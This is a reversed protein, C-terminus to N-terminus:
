RHVKLVAPSPSFLVQDSSDKNVTLQNCHVHVHVHLTREARSGFCVFGRNRQSEALGFLRLSGVRRESKNDSERGDIAREGSRPARRSRRFRPITCTLDHRNERMCNSNGKTVWKVARWEVCRSSRWPASRVAVRAHPTLRSGSTLRRVPGPTRARQCEVCFVLCYTAGMCVARKQLRVACATVDDRM